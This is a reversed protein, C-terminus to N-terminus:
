GRGSGPARGPLRREVWAVVSMLGNDFFLVAAMLMAGIVLMWRFPDAQAALDQVVVYLMAGLFAGYRHRIGGLILVMLVTGSALLSLSNLGVSRTVQASLAGATGAMGAGIAYIAVRRLWVPTGIARMRRENQRIGGLSKGFPSNVLWGALVFWMLAVGLCYLYATRGWLDFRFLGLLPAVRIGQLGDDGGTLAHAQNALEGVLAGIALTLMMLTVGETHLILAGTLAGAMACFLTALLLGILPDPHLHLAVNGAAYAGLGFFAAHGMSIIGAYGLVLDLSLAFLVMILANTGLGLYGDAVFWYLLALLWVAARALLSPWKLAPALPPTSEFTMNM